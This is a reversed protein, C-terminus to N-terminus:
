MRQQSPGGNWGGGACTKRRFGSPASFTRLAPRFYSSTKIRFWWQSTFPTIHNLTHNVQDYVTRVHYLPVMIHIVKRTKIVHNTAHQVGVKAVPCWRTPIGLLGWRDGHALCRPPHDLGVEDFDGSPIPWRIPRLFLPSQVRPHLHSCLGAGIRCVHWLLQSLTM